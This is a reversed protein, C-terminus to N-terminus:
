KVFVTTPSFSIKPFALPHIQDTDRYLQSAAYGTSSPERFVEVTQGVCDVVWYDQIGAEAYLKAKDVRDYELSSEAVEIILLVDKPEPHNRDYPQEVVWAVDPEPESELQAFRLPTQVRIQTKTTDCVEYSWTTLRIVANAHPTGVPNMELIEGRIFELRQQRPGAFVGGAIMKEYQALSFQSVTSM